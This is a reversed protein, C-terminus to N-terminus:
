DNKKVKVAILPMLKNKVIIIKGLKFTKLL